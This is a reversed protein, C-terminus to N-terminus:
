LGKGEKLVMGLFAHFTAWGLGFHLWDVGELSLSNQWLTFCAILVAFATHTSPEVLRNETWHKASM